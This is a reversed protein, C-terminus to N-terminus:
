ENGGISIMPDVKAVKTTSILSCVFSVALFAVSVLLSHSLNLYFPMSVPLMKSMVWTLGNGIVVSFGALMMVQSVIMGNIKRMPMGIAKLVGFQKEKQITIVYIFVGLIAASVIVLVWLIMQITMQEAKYGPINEIIDMKGVVEYGNLTIQNVDTGHVAVAHYTVEYMPNIETRIQQYTDLSIYGVSTHGYYADNTFGVVTLSIGTSSDEIVEGVKIGYEQFSEDLVIENAGAALGEGQIITPNLFSSEPIAFYTVDLKTSDDIRNVNMRQLNFPATDDTTMTELEKYVEPSIDSITILNEADDSLIFYPADTTEISASVARALGNALGSLFLVMFVMLLLIGEVLVYKGKSHKIEKWALNM